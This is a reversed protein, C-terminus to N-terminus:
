QVFKDFAEWFQQRIKNNEVLLEHKAEAIELYTATPLKQSVQKAAKISVVLDAGASVILFPIQLTTGFDVQKFESLANHAARVWSYTPSGVKLDPAESLVKSYREYREPDSTLTNKEFPLGLYPSDESSSTATRGFGVACFLNSIVGILWPPFGVKGFDVFPASLVVRELNTQYKQAVSLLVAGGTSHALVYYPPSCDQTVIEKFVTEFDLAYREFSEVHSKVSDELLRQSRGQGRWDFSVVSFGRTKLESVVEFYKEIYEGRGQLVIFTGKSSNSGASWKAYRIKIGDATMVFDAIVGDPIPNVLSNVLVTVKVAGISIIFKFEVWYYLMFNDHLIQIKYM